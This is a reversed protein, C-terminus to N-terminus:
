TALRWAHQKVIFVKYVCILKKLNIFIIDTETEIILHRTMYTLGPICTIKIHAFILNAIVVIYIDTNIMQPPRIPPAEINWQDM